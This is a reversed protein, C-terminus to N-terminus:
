PLGSGSSETETFPIVWYVVIPMDAINTQNNGATLNALHQENIEKIRAL